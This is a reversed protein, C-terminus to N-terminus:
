VDIVGIQKLGTKTNPFAQTKIGINELRLNHESAKSSQLVGRAFRELQAKTTEYNDSNRLDGTYGYRELVERAESSVNLLMKEEDHPGHARLANIIEMAIQPAKDTNNVEQPRLHKLIEALSPFFASGSKIVQRFAFVIQDPEYAMLDSAYAEIREKTPEQNFRLGMQYISSKIALKKKDNPNM